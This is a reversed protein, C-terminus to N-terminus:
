NLPLEGRAGGWFNRARELIDSNRKFYEEHAKEVITKLQTSIEEFRLEGTKKVGDIRDALNTKTELVHSRKLERIIDELFFVREVYIGYLDEHLEKIKEEPVGNEALANLSSKMKDHEPIYYREVRGQTEDMTEITNKQLRDMFTVQEAFVSEIADKDVFERAQMAATQEEAAKDLDKKYVELSDDMETIFKQYSEEQGEFRFRNETLIGIFKTKIEEGGKKLEKLWGTPDQEPSPDFSEKM